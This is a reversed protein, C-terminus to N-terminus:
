TPLRSGKVKSERFTASPGGLGAHLFIQSRWAPLFDMSGEHSTSLSPGVLLLHMHRALM